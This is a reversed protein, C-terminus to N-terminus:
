PVFYSRCRGGAQAAAEYLCVQKGQNALRVACALGSIGAGIVHVRAM